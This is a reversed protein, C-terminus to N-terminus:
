PAQALVERLRVALDAPLFPKAIFSARGAAIELRLAADPMYGSTYLIRARPCLGRLLAALERGGMGPLVVDTLVLDLGPTARALALAAGPDGADLVSYGCGALFGRLVGRLEAQDEVLLLTESGRPPAGPGEGAPASPAQVRPLLVTFRAGQGPRSEVRVGGGGQRVIGYVTSLGLGAGKGEPKTTFFPEFLRTLTAEDMGSGTDAVVLGVYEGAPVDVQAAGAPDVSVPAVEITLLGGRPMADRANLVLNMVVQELQGRDAEVTCGPTLRTEVAIREGITPGLLASLDEVLRALDHPAKRVVQSSAFALLQQTLRAASLGAAKIHQLEEGLPSGAPLGAQLLESRMVVVSMLNNFDHAIGGALRGIAELKQRQRLQREAEERQAVERRLEATREEVRRELEAHARRLEEEMRKRAFFDPVEYSRLPQGGGAKAAHRAVQEEIRAPPAMVFRCREDGRARCLVESAVLDVGFSETCWGSSYGANMICVPFDRTRGARLWADSEFSYPHDYILLYSEDPAPAALPSIDVFAWGTHSFHVPGASLRAAPDVLAMKTHFNRADSKGLAHALDFLLNRAFADAEAERGPGYLDRVLDFFEVSLSAARILVYREGHIEITGRTPDDRRERFYRSVVEEAAGFVGELEPPVRVTRLTM